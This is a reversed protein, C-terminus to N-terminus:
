YGANQELGNDPIPFIQKHEANLTVEGGNSLTINQLTRMAQGTRVLNVWRHGEGMLEVSRELQIADLVEDKTDVGSGTTDALSARNRIMNVDNLAQSLSGLQAEAEARILYIEALRIVPFTNSSQFKSLTYIDDGEFSYSKLVENREDAPRSRVKNAFEPHVALNQYGNETAPQYWRRLAQGDNELSFIIEGANGTEFIERYNDALTVSNNEIVKTAFIDAKSFEQTYLYLRALLAQATLQNVKGLETSSDLLDVAKLLDTEIFKFAEALTPRKYDDDTGNCEEYAEDCNSDDANNDEYFAQWQSQITVGKNGIVNPIGGFIRNLDFYIFGRLLHAEGMLEKKLQEQENLAEEEQLHELITHTGRIAQYAQNYFRDAIPMEYRDVKRFFSLNNAENSSNPELVEVIDSPVSSLVPFYIGYYNNNQINSYVEDLVELYDDSNTYFNEETVKSSPTAQDGGSVGCSSLFFIGIVAIKKLFVM